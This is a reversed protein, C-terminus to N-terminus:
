RGTAGPTSRKDPLDFTSGARELTWGVPKAGNRKVEISFLFFSFFFVFCHGSKRALAVRPLSIRKLRLVAFLRQLAALKVRDLTAGDAGLAHSDARVVVFVVALLLSSAISLQQGSHQSQRKGRTRRRVASCINEFLASLGIRTREVKRGLTTTTTSRKGGIEQGRTITYRDTFHEVSREPERHRRKVSFVCM